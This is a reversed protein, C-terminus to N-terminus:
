AREPLLSPTIKSNTALAIEKRGCFDIFSLCFVLESDLPFTCILIKPEVRSCSGILPFKMLREGHSKLFSFMETEMTSANRKACGLL